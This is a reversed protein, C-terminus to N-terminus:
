RLLILSAMRGTPADRRHSFFRKDEGYTCWQGGSVAHVGLVALRIRALGYLNAFWKEPHRPSATFCAATDSSLGPGAAGLFADRVDAGVEFATPGIAPGLWALVEAPDCGMAAVTAELVGAYLGRWGAHAAAVVDGQRSCLLVPLCDATLVACAVGPTRSWQADAEPVDSNTTAEVVTTGHVQALWSVTTDRPLTDALQQRNAVVAEAQDGVHDGLNLSDFPAGSVGGSRTTSLALVKAPARWVPVILSLPEAM